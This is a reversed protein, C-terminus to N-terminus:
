QWSEPPPLQVGHEVVYAKTLRATRKGDDITWTYTAPDYTVQADPSENLIKVAHRCEYELNTARMESRAVWEKFDLFATLRKLIEAEM